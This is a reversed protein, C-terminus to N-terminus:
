GPGGTVSVAVSGLFAGAKGDPAAFHIAVFEVRLGQVGAAPAVYEVDTSPGAIDVIRSGTEAGSTGSSITGRQDPPVDSLVHLSIGFPEAPPGARRAVPLGRIHLRVRGGMVVVPRLPLIEIPQAVISRQIAGITGEQSVQDPPWIDVDGLCEVRATLLGQQADRNVLDKTVRFSRVKFGPDPNAITFDTGGLIGNGSLFHSVLSVDELLLARAAALGAPANAPRMAFDIGTVIALPLIRRSQPPNTQTVFRGALFEGGTSAEVISVVAVESGDNAPNPPGPAAVVRLHTRTAMSDAILAATKRELEALMM